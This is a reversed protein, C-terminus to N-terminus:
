ARSCSAAMSRPRMQARCLGSQRAGIRRAIEKFLKYRKAHEDPSDADDDTLDSTSIVMFVPLPRAVSNGRAGAQNLAGDNARGLASFVAHLGM